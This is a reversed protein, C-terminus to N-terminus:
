TSNLSCTPTVLEQEETLGLTAAWRTLSPSFSVVWRFCRHGLEAEKFLNENRYIEQQKTEKKNKLNSIALTWKRTPCLWLFIDKFFVLPYKYYILVIWNILKITFTKRLRPSPVVFSFNGGDSQSTSMDHCMKKVTLQHPRPGGVASLVMGLCTSRPQM